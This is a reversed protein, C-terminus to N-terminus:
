SVQFWAAPRLRAAQQAAFRVPLHGTQLQFKLLQALAVSLLLCQATDGDRQAFPYVTQEPRVARDLAGEHVDEGPIQLGVAAPNEKAALVDAARPAIEGGPEAIHRLLLREIRPERHLPKQVVHRRQAAHLAAVSGRADVPREPQEREILLPALADATEGASHALPEQQRLRNEGLGLHEHEVLRRRPKVRLLADGHAVQDRLDRQVPDDQEGGVDYLVHLVGRLLQNQEGVAGNADPM